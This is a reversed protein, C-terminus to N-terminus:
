LAFYVHGRSYVYGQVLSFTINLGLVKLNLFKFELTKPPNYVCFSKPKDIGLNKGHKFGDLKLDLSILLIRTLESDFNFKANNM